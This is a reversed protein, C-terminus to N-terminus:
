HALMRAMTTANMIGFNQYCNNFIVYARQVGELRKLQNAWGSLERESYLYLYREAVPIGKRLWNAANRGHLRLYTEPGTAALFSPVNAATEPEDVAVYALSHRSLFDLTQERRAGEVLWSRHRFEVAISDGTLREPLGALYDLNDSRTTFYPPFQFVLMGLKGAQRLPALSSAFMQFALERVERSPYRLRREAREKASLLEKIAEPLRATEAAHQTLLAFAKINFIFGPPTREAWLRATKEAILTYYSADVEVTKFQSAYFRLRDEASRASPPYFADSKVLSPDTWSATGVLYQIQRSM